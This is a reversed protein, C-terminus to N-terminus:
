SVRFFESKIHEKNGRFYKQTTSINAHGVLTQVSQLEVGRNALNTIRTVRFRHPHVNDVGAAEALRAFMREVSNRKIPRPEGKETVFLADVDDNRTKLYEQLYFIAVDTLYAVRDKNGKGNVVLQKNNWDVESLKVECM